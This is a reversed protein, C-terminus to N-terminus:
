NTWLQICRRSRTWIKWTHWSRCTCPSLNSDKRQDRKFSIDFDMGIEHAIAPLHLMSNTSCGLAMDVTLCQTAEKNHDRPRINKRYMEMVQVAHKCSPYTRSHESCSPETEKESGYWFQWVTWPTQQTCVPVPDTHLVHKWKVNQWAQGEDTERSCLCRSGRVYQFPKDQTRESTWCVDSWRGLYLLFLETQSSGDSTRTREQWLKSDNGTCWVSTGNGHSRPIKSWTKFVLSYKMGFTWQLVMWVAIAPCLLHVAQWQWVLSLQRHSRDLNHRYLKMTLVKRYRSTQGNKKTMWPMLCPVTSTGATGTKVADSRMQKIEEKRVTKNIKLSEVLEQSGYDAQAMSDRKIDIRVSSSILDKNGKTGVLKCGRVHYWRHTDETLVKQVAAEVTYSGKDMDLSFRLM